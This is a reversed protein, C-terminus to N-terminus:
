AAAQQKRRVRERHAIYLGALVVIGAGLMTWGDPLHNFLLYGFLVGWVLSTYKFPAILAAEGNRFAEVMLYHATTFIVSSLGFIWLDRARFPVWGLPFTLLGAVLVATTTVFLVAVTTESSAIRRTILDRMGSALAAGLPLLMAWQMAATGPRLIVLVGLFGVLVALWRRWGVREGLVLPAMATIFIPGTFTIAIADALPLYILGTVFFFGSAIVCIARLAHGKVHSVRLTSLGGSFHALLLIWPIVFLSRLFLLQGVPYTAVLVKVIGDNLSLLAVGGVMCFIARLAQAPTSEAVLNDRAM